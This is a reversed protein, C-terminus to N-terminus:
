REHSARVLVAVSRLAPAAAIIAEGILTHRRLVEIEAAALPGRKALIEAPIALKGIDHLEAARAVTERPRPELGFADAVGAALDAVERAHALLGPEDDALAKLLVDAATRVRAAAVRM